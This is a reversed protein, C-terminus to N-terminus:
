FKNKNINEIKVNEYRIINKLGNNLYQTIEITITKGEINLGSGFDYQTGVLFDGSKSIGEFLTTYEYKKSSTTNSLYTDYERNGDDISFKFELRPFSFSVYFNIKVANFILEKKLPEGVYKKTATDYKQLEFNLHFTGPVKPVIVLEPLTKLDTIEILSVDTFGEEQKLKLAYDVGLIQHRTADNGVVKLKYIFGQEPKADIIETVDVPIQYGVRFNSVDVGERIGMSFSTLGETQLQPKSDDSNKSCSTMIVLVMLSTLFHKM